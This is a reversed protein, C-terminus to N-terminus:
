FHEIKTRLNKNATLNEKVNQRGGDRICTKALWRNDTSIM